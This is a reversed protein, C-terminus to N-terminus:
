PSCSGGSSTNRCRARAQGPSLGKATHIQADFIFTGAGLFEEADIIGSSEEDITLRDPDTTAGPGFLAEDFRAVVGLEGNSVRYAIIRALHNVNGPDEQILLNGRGSRDRHTEPSTPTENVRGSHQNPGGM